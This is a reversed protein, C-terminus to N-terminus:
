LPLYLNFFPIRCDPAVPPSLHFGSSVPTETRYDQYRGAQGLLLVSIGTELPNWKDVGTAGSELIGKKLKYRGKHDNKMSGIPIVYELKLEYWNDSGDDEIYDDKDSGNSGAVTPDFDSSFRPVETYARNRPFYSIAGYASFYLRKSFPLLYDWMGGVVGKADDFSGFVSGAFLLQDQFYGKTFGGVGVTTGMSESPFAYPLILRNEAANPNEERTTSFKASAAPRAGAVSPLIFFIALITLVFGLITKKM